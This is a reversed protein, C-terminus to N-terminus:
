AAVELVAWPTNWGAPTVVAKGGELTFTFWHVPIGIDPRGAEAVELSVGESPKCGKEVFAYLLDCKSVLHLGVDLGCSRDSPVEDDLAGALILHSGLPTDGRRAMHAAVARAFRLNIEVDGRCPSAVYVTRRTDTNHM